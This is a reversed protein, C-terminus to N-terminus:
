STQFSLRGRNPNELHNGIDLGHLQVAAPVVTYWPPNRFLAWSRKDKFLSQGIAHLLTVQPNLRFPPTLM